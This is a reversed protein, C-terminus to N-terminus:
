ALSWCFTQNSWEIFLHRQMTYPQLSMVKCKNDNKCYGNVSDCLMFKIGYKVPKHPMRVKIKLRGKFPVMGKNVSISEHCNYLAFIKTCLNRIKYLVNRAEDETRRHEPDVFFTYKKLQLYQKCSSFIRRIGPTHFLSTAGSSLFYWKDRSVVLLTRTANLSLRKQIPTQGTM